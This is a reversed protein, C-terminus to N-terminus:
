CQGHPAAPRAVRLVIRFGFGVRPAAWQLPEPQASRRLLVTM